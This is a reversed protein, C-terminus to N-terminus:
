RFSNNINQMHRYATAKLLENCQSVKEITHINIADVGHVLQNRISHIENIWREPIGWENECGFYDLFSQYIQNIAGDATRETPTHYKAGLCEIVNWFSLFKEIPDYTMIGKRYWSMARIIAAKHEDMSYDRAINFCKVFLEQTLIRKTAFGDNNSFSSNYYYLFLQLDIKFCLVDIMSGFFYLAAKYAVDQTDAYATVNAKLGNHVNAIKIDSYFQDGQEFGKAQRMSFPHEVKVPGGVELTIEWVTRPM